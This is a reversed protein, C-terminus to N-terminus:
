GCPDPAGGVGALRGALRCGRAQCEPSTLFGQGEDHKPCSGTIARGTRCISNLPNSHAANASGFAFFIPICTSEKLLGDGVSGM